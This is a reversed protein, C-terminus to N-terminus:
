EQYTHQAINKIFDFIRDKDNLTFHIAKSDISVNKSSRIIPMTDKRFGSKDKNKDKNAELIVVSKKM